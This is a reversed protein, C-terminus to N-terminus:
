VRSVGAEKSHKTCLWYHIYQGSTNKDVFSFAGEENCIGKKKIYRRCLKSM